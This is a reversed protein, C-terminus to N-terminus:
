LLGLVAYAAVVTSFIAALAAAAAGAVFGRSRGCDDRHAAVTRITRHIVAGLLAAVTLIGAIMVGPRLDPESCQPVPQCHAGGMATFYLLPVGLAFATLFAGLCGLGTSLKM